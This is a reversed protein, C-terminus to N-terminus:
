APRVGRDVAGPHPARRAALTESLMTGASDSLQQWWEGASRALLLVRMDPGPGPSNGTVAALFDPLAARTEAYDLILLVPADGQRAAAAAAAEHGAPVWYYRWGYRDAAERGLQLALRTKGAGGEGTVLRIGTRPPSVLWEHLTALEPRPWFAVV